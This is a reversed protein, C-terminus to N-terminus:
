RGLKLRRLGLVKYSSDGEIIEIARDGPVDRFTQTLGTTPWFVELTEIGTAQGLGITQRLPNAGFSGGSNVYRYISRRVGDEVVEARIRAGIASRNSRTGVAKITIWHNGFGPNEYLISHYGDGPQAGGMQEFVDLDGDHDLDAFAVGHGKQLHGFGGATTVDAFRKGRQNRYMVNPMLEEYPTQGTGLYFDLYGDNDLDGFNAGMVGAPRVLNYKPAANEFRGGGVGRYFSALEAEFPLGLYSAAVDAVRADFSAVYLDLMGDNDFDWFWAPFSVLPGTVGLREAVDTFTGDGNNRYLRNAEGFNSVYLDSLRDGNYDGWIVGKAYRFNQVGATEGVETFTGDGNNRFLQSPARIGSTRGWGGPQSGPVSGISASLESASNDSRRAGRARSPASRPLRPSPAAPTPSAGDARLVNEAIRASRGQGALSRAPTRPPAEDSSSSENGIYLDLDGDNDYDAWSASHSPYHVDGLGADFTVDTFTGDGNNRLLSNPHRGNEQLWGGRLVLIDADNDNDYDAQVLNIGGYLGSLGAPETADSFTGDQNNKFLRIQGKPDWNSVVVDLYGNGDFDDVIAGGALNFADLGVKPAINTFRPFDEESEFVQPPILYQEPVQDPYAGITMYALNLLWRAELFRRTGERAARLVINLTQIAQHSPGQQQHIGDGRLPLICSDVGHNRVCNVTEGLRVYAVALRFVLEFEVLVPIARNSAAALDYAQQFYSIAEREHGLRQQEVATRTLRAFEVQVPSLGALEEGTPETLIGGMFVLATDTQQAITELLDLM